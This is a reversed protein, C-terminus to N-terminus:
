LSTSTQHAMGRADVALQPQVPIPRVGPICSQSLSRMNPHELASNCDPCIKFQLLRAGRLMTPAAANSPQSPVGATTHQLHSVHRSSYPPQQPGHSAHWCGAPQLSTVHCKCERCAVVRQNPLHQTQPRRTTCILSSAHSAHPAASPQGPLLPPLPGRRTTFSMTAAPRPLGLNVVMPRCAPTQHWAKLIGLDM